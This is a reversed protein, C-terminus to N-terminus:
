AFLSRKATKHLLCKETDSQPSHSPFDQPPIGTVTLYLRGEAMVATVSLMKPMMAVIQRLQRLKSDLVYSYGRLPSSPKGSAYNIVTNM